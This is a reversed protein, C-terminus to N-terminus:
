TKVLGYVPPSPPKSPKVGRGWNNIYCFGRGLYNFTLYSCLGDTLNQQLVAISVLLAAYVERTQLEFLSASWDSKTIVGHSIITELQCCVQLKGTTTQQVFTEAHKTCM